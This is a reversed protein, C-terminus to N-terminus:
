PKRPLGLTDRLARNVQALQVVLDELQRDYEASSLRDRRTRLSDIQRQLDERRRVFPAARPDKTAAVTGVRNITIGNAIPGDATTASADAHGIGDGNDELVAHETLLRNTAEYIRAVERRTYTFLELLSVRQDKDGDAADAGLAGVFHEAFLSENQEAGSKTASLIIRGPGALPKVFDGSASAALVVAITTARIPALMTALEPASVDPGVLALQPRGSQASGHGIYILLVRENPQARAAMRELAARLADRTSRERIIHPDRATREALVTILSDEVLFRTRLAASAELALRTFRESRASDGGVGSVILVHTRASPQQSALPAPPGGLFLAALAGALACLWKGAVGTRSM